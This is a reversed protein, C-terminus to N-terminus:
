RDLAMIGGFRVTIEQVDLLAVRLDGMRRSGGFRPRSGCCLLANAPRQTRDAHQLVSGALPSHPQVRWARAGFSCITERHVLHTRRTSSPASGPSSLSIRPLLQQRSFYRKVQGNTCRLSASTRSSCRLAPVPVTDVAEAPPADESVAFRGLPCQFPLPVWAGRPAHSRRAAAPDCSSRPPSPSAPAAHAPGASPLLRCRPRVQHPHRGPVLVPSPTVGPARTRDSVSPPGRPGLPSASRPGVSPNAGLLQGAEAPAAVRPAQRKSSTVGAYAEHMAVRVSESASASRGAGGGSSSSSSSPPSPSPLGQHCEIHRRRTSPTANSNRPVDIPYKTVRRASAWGPAPETSTPNRCSM